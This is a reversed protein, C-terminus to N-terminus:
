AFIAKLQAGKGMLDILAPAIYRDSCYEIIDLHVTICVLSRWQLQINSAGDPVGIM